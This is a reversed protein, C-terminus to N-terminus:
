KEASWRCPEGVQPEVDVQVILQNCPEDGHVGSFHMAKRTGGEARPHSKINDQFLVDGPKMILVDGDTTKIYWSGAITTVFQPAPCHHWPNEGFQQTVIMDAMKFDSAFSKVYQQSDSAYGKKELPGFPCDRKVHTEGHDDVWLHHYRIIGELVKNSRPAAATTAETGAGAMMLAFGRRDFTLARTLPLLLTLTSLSHLCGHHMM